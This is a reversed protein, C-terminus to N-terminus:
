ESGGGFTQRANIAAASTSLAMSSSTNVPYSLPHLKPSMRRALGTSSSSLSPAATVFSSVYQSELDAGGGGSGSGNSSSSSSSSSSSAGSAASRRSVPQADSLSLSSMRRRQQKAISCHPFDCCSVHSLCVCLCVFLSHNYSALHTVYTSICTSPSADPLLCCAPRLCCAPLAQHSDAVVCVRAANIVAVAAARCPHRTDNLIVVVATGALDGAQNEM